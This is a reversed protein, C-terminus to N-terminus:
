MLNGIKKWKQPSSNWRKSFVVRNWRNAKTAQTKMKRNQLYGARMQSPISTKCSQQWRGWAPSKQPPFRDPLVHREWFFLVDHWTHSAFMGFCFIKTLTYIPYWLHACPLKQFRVKSFYRLQRSVWQNKESRPGFLDLLIFMMVKWGRGEVWAEFIGRVNPSWLFWLIRVTWGQGIVRRWFSM